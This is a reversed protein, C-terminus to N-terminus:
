HIPREQNDRMLDKMVVTALDGSLTSDLQKKIKEIAGKLDMNYPVLVLAKGFEDLAKHFKKQSLYVRGANIYPFERNQYHNAKKALEFWKLSEELEGAKFLLAGLDNYPPGYTPDKHIARLCLSKSKEDKTQLAYAWALLTLSEATEKVMVAQNFREEAEHYKKATILRHGEKIWRQYKRDRQLELSGLINLGSAVVDQMKELSLHFRPISGKNLPGKQVNITAFNNTQDEDDFKEFDPDFQLVDDASEEVLEDEIDVINLRPYQIDVNGVSQCWQHIPRAGDYAINVCEVIARVLHDNNLPFSTLALFLQHINELSRRLDELVDQQNNKLFDNEVPLIGFQPRLLMLRVFDTLKNQFDFALKLCEKKEAPGTTSTVHDATFIVREAYSIASYLESILPGKLLNPM